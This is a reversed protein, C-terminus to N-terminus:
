CLKHTVVSSMINHNSNPDHLRYLVSFKLKRLKGFNKQWLCTKKMILKHFNLTYIAHVAPLLGQLGICSVQQQVTYTVVILKMQSMCLRLTHIHPIEGHCVM